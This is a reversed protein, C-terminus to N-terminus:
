SASAGPPLASRINAWPPASRRSTSHRSHSSVSRPGSSRPAPSTSSPTQGKAPIAPNIPSGLTSPALGGRWQLLERIGRSSAGHRNSKVAGAGIEVLSEPFEEAGLALNGGVDLRGRAGDHLVDGRAAVRRQDLRGLLEIPKFERGGAQAHCRGLDLSRHLGAVARRQVRQFKGAVADLREMAALQRLVLTEDVGGTDLEAPAPARDLRDAEVNGAAGRRVRGRHQHVRHRRCDGANRPQHHHHRRGSTLEIRQHEGGRLKTADAFDIADAARLRHGREGIAGCRNRRDGLDDPGAIGIDGGGLPQHEALDADVHDGTGGFHQDIASSLPLAEQIAASRSACASCSSLACDIRIVSEFRRASSTACATSACSLVSGRALIAPADHCSKPAIM